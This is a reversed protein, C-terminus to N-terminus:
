ERTKTWPNNKTKNQKQKNQKIKKHKKKKAPKVTIVIYETM